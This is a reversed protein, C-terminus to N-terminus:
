HATGSGSARHSKAGRTRVRLVFPGMPKGVTGRILTDPAYPFRTNYELTASAWSVQVPGDADSRKESFTTPIPERAPGNIFPM